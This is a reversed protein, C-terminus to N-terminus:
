SGQPRAARCKPNGCKDLWASSTTGCVGCTWYKGHREAHRWLAWATLLPLAIAGAYLLTLAGLDEEDSERYALAPLLMHIQEFLSVMFSLCFIVILVKAIRRNYFFPRGTLANYLGNAALWGSLVGGGCGFLSWLFLAKNWRIDVDCFHELAQTCGRFLLVYATVGVLFVALILVCALFNVFRNTSIPRM